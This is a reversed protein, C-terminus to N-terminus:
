PLRLLYLGEPCVFYCKLNIEHVTSEMGGHVYLHIPSVFINWDM